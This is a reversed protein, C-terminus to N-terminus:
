RKPDTSKIVLNDFATVSDAKTWLGVKGAGQFTEDQVDFLHDNNLSVAFRDDNIVAKLTSWQGVPVFVEEGYSSVGAGMPKLDSRIGNEMKYLVVNDELANARVVYYNNEDQYRWVLGAAQDISGSLPLFHVSLELNRASFKEHVCLPFRNSISDTSSQILVKSTQAGKERNEVTWVARRGDGTVTVSFGAPNSGPEMGEFDITLLANEEIALSKEQICLDVIFLSCILSVFILHRKM